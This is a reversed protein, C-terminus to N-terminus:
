NLRAKAVRQHAPAIKKILSLMPRGPAAFEAGEPLEITDLAKGVAEGIDRSFAVTEAPSMGEPVPWTIGILVGGTVKVSM